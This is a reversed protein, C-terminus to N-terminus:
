SSGRELFYQNVMIPEQNSIHKGSPATKVWSPYEYDKEITLKREAQTLKRFILIDAVVV